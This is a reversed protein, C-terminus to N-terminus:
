RGSGAVGGELGAPLEIEFCSFRRGRDSEVLRLTGGLSKMLIKRANWLGLGVGSHHRGTAGVVRGRKFKDFITEADAADIPEGESTIRILGGSGLGRGVAFEVVSHDDSYQMANQIIPYLGCELLERQTTVVVGRECGAFDLQLDDRSAIVRSLRALRVTEDRLDVRTAAPLSQVGTVAHANLMTRNYIRTHEILESLETLDASCVRDQLRLVDLTAKAADLPQGLEHTMKVFDEERELKLAREDALLRTNEINVAVQTAVTDFVYRDDEDFRRADPDQAVMVGVLRQNVLLPAGLLCRHRASLEERRFNFKSQEIYWDSILITKRAALVHGIFGTPDFGGELEDPVLRQRDGDEFWQIVYLKGDFEDLRCLHFNAVALADALDYFVKTAMQEVSTESAIGVSRVLRLESAKRRLKQLRETADIVLIAQSAMTSLIEKHIKTLTVGVFRSCLFLMGVSRDGAGIELSLITKIVNNDDDVAVAVGSDSLGQGRDLQLSRTVRAITDAVTESVERGRPAVCMHDLDFSRDLTPIFLALDSGTVRRSEAAIYYFLDELGEDSRALHETLARLSEFGAARTIAIGAQRAIAAALDKDAPSFAGYKNDDISVVGLINAGDEVPVVLMSRSESPRRRASAFRDDKTADAHAIPVGSSFVAGTLGEDLAFVRTRIQDADRGASVLPALLTEGGEDVPVFMTCHSCNLARQIRDVIRQAVQRRDLVAGLDQTIENLLELDRVRRDSEALLRIRELAQGVFRSYISLIEADEDDFRRHAASTTVALVGTLEGRMFVPAEILHRVFRSYRERKFLDPRGSWTSFDNQIEVAGSNLVRGMVGESARVHKGIFQPNTSFEVTARGEASDIKWYAAGIGDTTEEGLLKAATIVATNVLTNRDEQEAITLAASLLSSQLTARRQESARRSAASLYPLAAAVLHELDLLADARLPGPHRSYVNLVGVPKTSGGGVVPLAILSRWGLRRAAAGYKLRATAEPANLDPLFIRESKHMVDANISTGPELPLTGDAALAGTVRPSHAVIRLTNGREGPRESPSWYAVDAQTLHRTADVLSSAVISPGVHGLQELKQAYDNLYSAVLCRTALQRLLDLTVDTTSSLAPNSVRLVVLPEDGPGLDISREAIHDAVSLHDSQDHCRVTRTFGGPIQMSPKATITVASAGTLRLVYKALLGYLESESSAGALAEQIDLVADSRDTSSM